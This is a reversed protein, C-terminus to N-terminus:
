PREPLPIIKTRERSRSARSDEIKFGQSLEIRQPIVVSVREGSLMARRRAEVDWELEVRGMEKCRGAVTKSAKRPINGRWSQGAPHHKGPNREGEGFWGVWGWDGASHGAEWHRRCSEQTDGHQHIHRTISRCHETNPLGLYETRGNSTAAHLKKTEM